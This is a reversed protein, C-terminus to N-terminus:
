EGETPILNQITSTVYNWYGPTELQRTVLFPPLFRLIEHRFTQEEAQLENIREVFRTRFAQHGLKRDDLKKTLLESLSQAQLLLGEADNPMEYRGAIGKL